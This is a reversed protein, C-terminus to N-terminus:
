HCGMLFSPVSDRWLYLLRSKGKLLGYKGIHIPGIGKFFYHKESTVVPVVGSEVKLLVVLCDYVVIGFFYLVNGVLNIDGVLVIEKYFVAVLVADGLEVYGVEFVSLEAYVFLTVIQAGCAAVVTYFPVRSAFVKFRGSFSFLVSM